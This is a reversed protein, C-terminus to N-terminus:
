DKMRYRFFKKDTGAPLTVQVDSTQNESWSSLDDSEEIVVQLTAQNDSIAAIKSGVRLDRMQQESMYGSNNLLTLLAASDSTPDFDRLQIEVGDAIGDSDSDAVNPDTGTNTADVYTGTNTEVSDPLGDGDTDVSNPDFFTGSILVNDVYWNNHVNLAPVQIRFAASEGAALVYDTLATLDCVANYWTWSGTPVFSAVEFSSVVDLDSLATGATGLLHIVNIATTNPSNTENKRYHFNLSELSLSEASNNTIRLDISRSANSSPRIVVVSNGIESLSEDNGPWTFTIVSNVNTNLTHGGGINNFAPEVTVGISATIGNAVLDPTSDSLRGSSDADWTHWGAIQEGYTQLSLSCISILALTLKLTSLKTLKM